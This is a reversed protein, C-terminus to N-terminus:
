FLGCIDNEFLILLFQNNTAVMRGLPDAYQVHINSGLLHNKGNDDTGTNAKEKKRMIKSLLMNMM